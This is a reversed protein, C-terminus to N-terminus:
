NATIEIMLAFDNSSSDDIRMVLTYDYNGSYLLTRDGDKMSKKINAIDIDGSINELFLTISEDFSNVSKRGELSQFVALTTLYNIQNKSGSVSSDAFTVNVEELVLNNKSIHSTGCPLVATFYTETSLELPAASGLLEDLELDRSIDMGFTEDIMQAAWYYRDLFTLVDTGEIFVESPEPHTTTAPETKQSGSSYASLSISILLISLVILIIRFLKKM